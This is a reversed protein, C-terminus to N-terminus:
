ANQISMGDVIKHPSLVRVLTRNSLLDRLLPVHSTIQAAILLYIVNKMTDILIKISEFPLDITDMMSLSLKFLPIQKRLLDFLTRVCMMAFHPSSSTSLFIYYTLQISLILRWPSGNSPPFLHLWDAQRVWTAFLPACMFTWMPQCLSKVSHKNFNHGGRQTKAM